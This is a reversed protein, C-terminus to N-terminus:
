SQQRIQWPLALRPRGQERCLGAGQRVRGQGARGQGARGQGARGQGARGQGAGAGARGATSGEARHKM